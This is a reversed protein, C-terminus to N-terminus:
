IPVSSRGVSPRQEREETQVATCERPSVHSTDLSALGEVLQVLFGAVFILGIQSMHVYKLVVTHLKDGLLM